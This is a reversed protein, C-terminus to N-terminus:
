GRLYFESSAESRTFLFHLNPRFINHLFCWQRSSMKAGHSESLLFSNVVLYLPLQKRYSVVTAVQSKSACYQISFVLFFVLHGFFLFGIKANQNTSLTKIMSRLVLAESGCFRVGNFVTKGIPVILTKSRFNSDSENKTCILLSLFNGFSFVWFNSISKSTCRDEHVLFLIDPPHACVPSLFLISLILDFPILDFSISMSLIKVQILDFGSKFLISNESSYSRIRVQILDFTPNFLISNQSNKKLIDIHIKM